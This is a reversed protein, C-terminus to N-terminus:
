FFSILQRTQRLIHGRRRVRRSDRLLRRGHVVGARRTQDHRRWFRAENGIFLEKRETEIEANFYVAGIPVCTINSFSIPSTAPLSFKFFGPEDAIWYGPPAGRTQSEGSTSSGFFRSRRAEAGGRSPYVGEDRDGFVCELTLSTRDLKAAAKADLPGVPERVFLSLDVQWVARMETEGEGLSALNARPAVIRSIAAEDKDELAMDVREKFFSLANRLGRRVANEDRSAGTSVDV